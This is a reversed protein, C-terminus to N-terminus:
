YTRRSFFTACNQQDGFDMSTQFDNILYHVGPVNSFSDLGYWEMDRPDKNLAAEIQHYRPSSNYSATRFQKIGEIGARAKERDVIEGAQYGLMLLRDAHAKDRATYTGDGNAGDSGDDDAGGGGGAPNFGFVENFPGSEWLQADDGLFDTLKGNAKDSTQTFPKCM